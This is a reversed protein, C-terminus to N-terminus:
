PYLGILILVAVAACASDGDGGEGEFFCIFTVWSPIEGVM